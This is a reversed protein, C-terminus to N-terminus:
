NSNKLFAGSAAQLKHMTKLDKSSNHRQVIDSLEEPQFATLAEKIKTFNERVLKQVLAALAEFEQTDPANLKYQIHCIVFWEVFHTVAADSDSLRGLDILHNNVRYFEDFNLYQADIVQSSFMFHPFKPVLTKLVYDLNLMDQLAKGESPTSSKPSHRMTNVQNTNNM